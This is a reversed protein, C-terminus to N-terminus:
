EGQSYTRQSVRHGKATNGKLEFAAFSAGEPGEARSSTRQEGESREGQQRPTQMRTSGADVTTWVDKKPIYSPPRNGMRALPILDSFELAGMLVVRAPDTELWAWTM